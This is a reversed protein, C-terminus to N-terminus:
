REPDPTSPNSGIIRPRVIVIITRGIQGPGVKASTRGALPLPPV